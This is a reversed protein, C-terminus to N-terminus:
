FKKVKLIKRKQIYGGKDSGKLKQKEFVCGRLFLKIMESIINQGKRKGEGIRM